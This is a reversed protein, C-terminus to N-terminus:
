NIPLGVFMEMPVDLTPEGDLYGGTGVLCRVHPECPEGGKHEHIMLPILCVQTKLGKWSVKESKDMVEKLGKEFVKVWLNRNYGNDVSEKNLVRLTKLSVWRNEDVGIPIDHNGKLNM